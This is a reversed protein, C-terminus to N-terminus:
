PMLSNLILGGIITGVVGFISLGIAFWQQAKVKRQDAMDVELKDIRLLAAAHQVQTVLGLEIRDVSEKVAHLGRLLEWGTPEPEGTV